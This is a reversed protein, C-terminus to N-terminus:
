SAHHIDQRKEEFLVHFTKSFSEILLARAEKSSIKVGLDELSYGMSDTSNDICISGHQFISEKSRRQANGGIKKGDIVIDYPEFGEQCFKSQSLEINELEKAFMPKLGFHTYFEILFSCILAYSEKVSLNEVYSTPIILAYSIDNGHFLIGGGTIRQAYNEKFSKLNKLNKVSDENQSVGYTFSAEWEYVRFIPIDSPKFGEFLGKDIRMNDKASLRESHMLAFTKKTASNLM